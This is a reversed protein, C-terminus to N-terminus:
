NMKSYRFIKYILYVFYTLIFFSIFSIIDNSLDLFGNKKLYLPFIVIIPMMLIFKEKISNLKLMLIILIFVYLLISYRYILCHNINYKALPLFAYLVFFIFFVYIAIRKVKENDLNIMIVNDKM